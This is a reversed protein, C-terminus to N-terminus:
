DSFSFQVWRISSVKCSKLRDHAVKRDIGQASLHTVKSSDTLFSFMKIALAVDEAAESIEATSRGKKALTSAVGAEAVVGLNFWLKMNTPNVRLARQLSRLSDEHRGHRYQAHAVCEQLQALKDAGVESVSSKTLSKLTSQYLREADVLRNQALYVHAM